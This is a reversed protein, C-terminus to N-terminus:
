NKLFNKIRFELFPSLGSSIWRIKKEPDIFIITPTGAVKFQRALTTESSVAIQFKYDRDKVVRAVLNPDEQISIAIVSDAPVEGQQILNNIRKLEVECPPCWTAWFVLVLGKKEGHKENIIESDFVSGDLKPILIRPAPKGEAQFHEYFVPM